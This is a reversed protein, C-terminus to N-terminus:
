GWSFSVHVAKPNVVRNALNETALKTAIEGSVMRGINDALLMNNTIRSVEQNLGKSAALGPLGEEESGGGQLKIVPM